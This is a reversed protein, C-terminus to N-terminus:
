ALLIAPPLTLRRPRRLRRVLIALIPKLMARLM